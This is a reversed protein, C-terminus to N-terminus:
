SLTKTEAPEAVWAGDRWWLTWGTAKGDKESSLYHEGAKKAFRVHVPNKKPDAIFEQIGYTDYGFGTPSYGIPSLVAIRGEDLANQISAVDVRRLQCLRQRLTSAIRTGHHVAIRAHGADLAQRQREVRLVSRTRVDEAIASAEDFVVVIRRGANHLGAFAEANSESWPVVRAIEEDLALEPELLIPLKLFSSVLRVM